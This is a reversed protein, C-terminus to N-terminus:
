DRSAINLRCARLSPMWSLGIQASTSAQSLVCFRLSAAAKSASCLKQKHVAAPQDFPGKCLIVVPSVVLMPHKKKKKKKKKERSKEVLVHACNRMTM